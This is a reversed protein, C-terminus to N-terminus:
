RVKLTFIRKGTEEYAGLSKAYQALSESDTIFIAEWLNYPRSIAQGMAYNVLADAKLRRGMGVGVHLEHVIGAPRWVLCGNVPHGICVIQDRELRVDGNQNGNLLVDLSPADESRYSHALM